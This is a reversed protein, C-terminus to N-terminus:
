HECHVLANMRGGSDLCKDKAIFPAIALVLWITMALWLGFQLFSWVAELKPNPEDEQGWRRKLDYGCDVCDTGDVDVGKSRKSVRYDISTRAGCQPCRIYIWAWVFAASFLAAAPLVLAFHGYLGALAGGGCSLLMAIRSLDILRATSVRQAM